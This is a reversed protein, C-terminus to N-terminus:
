VWAALCRVTIPTLDDQVVSLGLAKKGPTQGHNFVEFLVPYFWEILFWVILWLGVGLEGLFLSLFGAIMLLVGRLGLDILSAMFRSAPGALQAEITIGGPIEVDYSTDLM